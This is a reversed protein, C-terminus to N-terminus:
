QGLKLKRSPTPASPWPQNHCRKCDTLPFAVAGHCVGCQAGDHMRLKSIQSAGSKMKFLQPHCNSCDLWRTHEGHSFRVPPTSGKLNLLIDSDLVEAETSSKPNASARPAILAKQLAAGWDVLDGSTGAPLKSLAESPAQLKKVAPNAPDHVGDTALPQWHRTDQAAAGVAFVLLLVGGAFAM